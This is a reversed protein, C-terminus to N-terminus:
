WAFLFLLSFVGVHWLGLFMFAHCLMMMAMMYLMAFALERRVTFLLLFVNCSDDGCMGWLTHLPFM